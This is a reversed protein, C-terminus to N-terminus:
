HAHAALIRDYLRGVSERYSMESFEAAVRARGSNGLREALERDRLVALLSSALAEADGPPVLMGTHGSQVLEPIGDVATAVVPLGAAMAELITLPLGEWRTSLVFADMLGLFARASPQYGAFVFHSEVGLSAILERIALYHERQGPTADDGVILFRVGPLEPSILAAARVLTEFDKQPHLRAVMGALPADDAIGLAARSIEMDADAATAPQDIGDYLVSGRTAPVTVGFEKWTQMSVFAFHDVLRLVPKLRMPFSRYRNRVHSVVPVRALKGALACQFAAAVDACHLVDVRRDRLIRALRQSAVFYALGSRYSPRAPEYVAVDVNNALFLDRVGSARGLHLATARHGHAAAAEILRLTAVETGAVNEWPLVHAIHVGRGGGNGIM